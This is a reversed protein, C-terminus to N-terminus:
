PLVKRGRKANPKWVRSDTYTGHKNLYATLAKLAADLEAMAEAHDHDVCLLVPPIHATESVSGDAWEIRGRFEWSAFPGDTYHEIADLSTIRGGWKHGLYQTRM